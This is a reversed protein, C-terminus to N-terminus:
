LNASQLKFAAEKHKVVGHIDTTQLVVFQTVLLFIISHEVLEVSLLYLLHMDYALIGVKHHAVIIRRQLIYVIIELHVVFGKNLFIELAFTYLLYFTIYCALLILLKEILERFLLHLYDGVLFRTDNYHSCTRSAALRTNQNM